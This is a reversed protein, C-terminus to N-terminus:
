KIMEEMYMEGVEVAVVAVIYWRSRMKMIMIEEHDIRVKPQTPGFTRCVCINVRSVM